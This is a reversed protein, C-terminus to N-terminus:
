EPSPFVDPRLEHAGIQGKSAIVIHLVWDAPVNERKMWNLIQQQSVAIKTQRSLANAFDQQTKAVRKFLSALKARNPKEINM